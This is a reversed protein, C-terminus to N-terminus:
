QTNNCQSNSLITSELRRIREDQEIIVQLLALLKPEMRSAILRVITNKSVQLPETHWKNVQEIEQKLIELVSM